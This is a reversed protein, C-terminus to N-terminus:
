FSHPMFANRKTKERGTAIDTPVPETMQIISYWGVSPM